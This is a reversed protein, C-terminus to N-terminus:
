LDDLDFPGDGKGFKKLLGEYSRLSELFTSPDYSAKEDRKQYPMPRFIHGEYKKSYRYEEIGIGKIHLAQAINKINIDLSTINIRILFQRPKEGGSIYAEVRNIVKSVIEQEKPNLRPSELEIASM